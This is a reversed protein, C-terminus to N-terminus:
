ATEICFRTLHNRRLNKHLALLAPLRTNTAIRLQRCSAARRLFIWCAGALNQMSVALSSAIKRAKREDLLLVSEGRSQAALSIATAEGMGLSRCEQLLQLPDEVMLLWNPPEEVFARLAIPAGSHMAEEKVSRTITVAGYLRQLLPLEGLEALCSIVSNDALVIV